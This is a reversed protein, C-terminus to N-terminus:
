LIAPSNELSSQSTNCRMKLAEFQEIDILRYLVQRGMKLYRPGKGNWRWQKLTTTTINWRSALIKSTLLTSEM